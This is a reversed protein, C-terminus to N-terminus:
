KATGRSKKIEKLVKVAARNQVATGVTVRLWDPMGYNAIPRFILGRRLSAEFVEMGTMGFGERTNILFFNGQSPLFPINLARYATSMFRMGDKNTKISKKIFARDHLAAEAGILGISSVNFPMRVKQVYKALETRMIGYGVRLGGLGYIKSFTKLVSVNSFRKYLKVPNSMDKAVVYDMYAYDLMVHVSGDRIKEVAELFPILESDPVYTGTPNNPNPFAVMKVRPNRKIEELMAKVDFRFDPTMKAFVTEVGQIRASIPYAAFVSESSVMLDGPICLSRLILEIIENSGNGLVIEDFSVGELKALTTRLHFGSADPYLQLENMAKKMAALAKPSPGLPNENSALKIVKKVGYQRQTEEIPKGAIYPKLKEIYTPVRITAM